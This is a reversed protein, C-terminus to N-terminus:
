NFFQAHERCESCIAMNDVINNLPLASCCDSVEEELDLHLEDWISGLYLFGIGISSLVVAGTISELQSYHYSSAHQFLIGIILILYKLYKDM